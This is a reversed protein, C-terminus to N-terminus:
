TTRLVAANRRSRAVDPDVITEVARLREIYADPLGHEVAGCLVFDLYWSYPKLTDDIATPRAVYARAAVRGSEVRVDLEVADYSPECADLRPGHDAAISFLVGWVHDEDHGSRLLNAKGSEDTSQKHFALRQGAVHGIGVPQASPVRARLRLTSMNSGYAFVLVGDTEVGDPRPEGRKAKSM